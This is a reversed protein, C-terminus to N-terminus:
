GALFYNSQISRNLNSKGDKRADASEVFIILFRNTNYVIYTMIVNKYIKNERSLGQHGTKNQQVSFPYESRINRDNQPLATSNELINCAVRVTSHM